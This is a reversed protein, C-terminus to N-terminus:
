LLAIVSFTIKLEFHVPFRKDAPSWRFGSPYCMASGMERTRNSSSVCSCLLSMFSFLSFYHFLSSSTSSLPTYRSILTYRCCNKKRTGSLPKPHISSSPPASLCPNSAINHPLVFVSHYDQLRHTCLLAHHNLVADYIAPRDYQVHGTLPATPSVFVM